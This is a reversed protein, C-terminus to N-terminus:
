QKLIKFEHISVKSAKKNQYLCTSLHAFGELIFNPWLCDLSGESIVCCLFEIQKIVKFVMLHVPFTYLIYINHKM